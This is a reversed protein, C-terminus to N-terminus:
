SPWVILFLSFKRSRSFKVVFCLLVAFLVSMSGYIYFRLQSLIRSVTCNLKKGEEVFQFPSCVNQRFDLFGDPWLIFYVIWIVGIIPSVKLQRNIMEMICQDPTPNPGKNTLTSKFQKM